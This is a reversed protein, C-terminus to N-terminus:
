QAERKKEEKTELTDSQMTLYVEGQPHFSTTKRKVDHRHLGEGAM